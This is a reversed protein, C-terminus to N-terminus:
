EKWSTHPEVFIGTRAYKKPRRLKLHGTGWRSEAGDNKKKKEREELVRDGYMPHGMKSRETPKSRKNKGRGRM